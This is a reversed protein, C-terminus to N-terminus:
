LQYRNDDSEQESYTLQVQTRDSMDYDLSIRFATDNRDDYTM